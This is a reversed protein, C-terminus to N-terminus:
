MEDMQEVQFPMWEELASDILTMNQYVLQATNLREILYIKTKIKATFTDHETELCFM